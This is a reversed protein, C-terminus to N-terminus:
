SARCNQTLLSFNALRSIHEEGYCVVGHVPNSPFPFRNLQKLVLTVLVQGTISWFTGHCLEWLTQVESAFSSVFQIQNINRNVDGRRPEPKQERTQCQCIHKLKLYLPLLVLHQDSEIKSDCM